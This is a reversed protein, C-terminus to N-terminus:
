PDEPIYNIYHHPLLPTMKTAPFYSIVNKKLKHAMSFISSQYGIVTECYNLDEELSNHSIKVSSFSALGSHLYETGDSEGSPHPRIVFQCNDFDTNLFRLLNDWLVMPEIKQERIPELCLLISPSDVSLSQSELINNIINDEYYNCVVEVNTVEPIEQAVINLAEEDVVWIRNPILTKGECIFRSRYNVWHDLYVTVNKDNSICFEIFKKEWNTQWGTSCIFENISKPLYEISEHLNFKLPSAKYIELAPGSLLADYANEPHALAWALLLNAGGADHSCLLVNPKM